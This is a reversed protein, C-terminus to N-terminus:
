DTRPWRREGFWLVGGICLVLFAVFTISGDAMGRQPDNSPSLVAYVAVAFYGALLLACVIAM